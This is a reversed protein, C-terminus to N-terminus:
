SRRSSGDAHRAVLDDADDGGALAHGDVAAVALRQCSEGGRRLAEDIDVPVVLRQVFRRPRSIGAMGGPDADDGGVLLARQGVDALAMALCSPAM